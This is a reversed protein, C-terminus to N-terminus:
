IREKMILHFDRFTSCNYEKMDGKTGDKMDFIVIFSIIWFSIKDYKACLIIRNNRAFDMIICQYDVSYMMMLSFAFSKAIDERM